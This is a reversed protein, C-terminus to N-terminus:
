RIHSFFNLGGKEGMGEEVEGSSEQEMVIVKSKLGM